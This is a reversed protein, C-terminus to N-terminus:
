IRKLIEERLKENKWCAYDTLGLKKAMARLENRNAEQIENIKKQAKSDEEMIDVVRTVQEVLPHIEEVLKENSKSVSLAKTVESEMRETASTLLAISNNKSSIEYSKREIDSELSKIKEEAANYKKKFKRKKASFVITLIFLVIILVAAGGLVAVAYWFNSSFWAIIADCISKLFNEM